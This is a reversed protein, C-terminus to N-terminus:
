GPLCLSNFKILYISGLIIEMIEQTSFFGPSFTPFLSSLSAIGPGEKERHRVV